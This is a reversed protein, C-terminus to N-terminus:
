IPDFASVEEAADLRGGFALRDEEARVEVGDRRFARDLRHDVLLADHAVRGARDESRVVLGGDRGHELRRATDHGVAPRMRADLEQERRLLLDAQQARGGEVVRRQTRLDPVDVVLGRRDAVDDETRRVGM